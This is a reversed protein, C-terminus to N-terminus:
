KITKTFYQITRMDFLCNKIINYIQYKKYDNAAYYVHKIGTRNHIGILKLRKKMLTLLTDIDNNYESTKNKITDEISEIKELSKLIEKIKVAPKDKDFRPSMIEDRIISYFHGNIFANSYTIYYYNHLNLSRNGCYVFYNNYIENAAHKIHEDKNELNSKCWNLIQDGRFSHGNFIYKDLDYLDINIAM